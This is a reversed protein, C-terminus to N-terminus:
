TVVELMFLDTYVSILSIRTKKLAVQDIMVLVTLVILTTLVQM